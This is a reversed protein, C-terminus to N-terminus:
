LIFEKRLELMSERALRGQEVVLMPLSIFDKLDLMFFAILKFLLLGLKQVYLIMGKYFSISAAVVAFDM